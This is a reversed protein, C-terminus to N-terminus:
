VIYDMNKKLDLYLINRQQNLWLGTDREKYYTVSNINTPIILDKIKNSYM